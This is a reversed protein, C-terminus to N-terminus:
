VDHTQCLVCFTSHTRGNLHTKICLEAKITGHNHKNTTHVPCYKNVIRKKDGSICQLRRNLSAVAAVSSLHSTRCFFPSIFIIFHGDLMESRSETVRVKQQYKSPRVWIIAGRVFTPRCQPRSSLETILQLPCSLEPSLEAENAPTM